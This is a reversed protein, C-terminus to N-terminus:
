LLYFCWLEDRHVCLPFTMSSIAMQLGPLLDEGSVSNAQVKMMSKQGGSIHSFLHRGNISGLKHCDM